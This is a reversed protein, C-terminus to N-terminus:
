AARKLLIPLTHEADLFRIEFPPDPVRDGPRGRPPPMAFLHAPTLGFYVEAPTAGGLGQHPRFYAYHILSLEVRRELDERLLPRFFALRLTAKLSRWFREILAISGTKGVAGFRQQIGLKRLVSRFRDAKFCPGQDSVFHRPLGHCRATKQVLSAMERATPEKEFVRFGLPFRSFADLVAALKFSFLRFLGPIDTLDAMLVHLPNSARLVRSTGEAVPESSPPRPSREKRIRGVARSSIRWGARALTLAIADNGGVGALALTKVTERVVDAFRRVPPSPRVLSGVTEKQRETETEVEWRSITMRCIQFTRATEEQSLVMLKKLRLIRFRQEPTYHPRHREPIKEWRAALIETCERALRVQFALGEYRSHDRVHRHVSDRMRALRHGFTLALLESVKLVARLAVAEFRLRRELTTLVRPFPSDGSRLM